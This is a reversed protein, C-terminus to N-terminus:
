LEFKKTYLHLGYKTSGGGRTSSGTKVLDLSPLDRSDLRAPIYEFELLVKIMSDSIPSFVVLFVLYPQM